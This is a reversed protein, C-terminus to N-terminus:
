YIPFQAIAGAEILAKVLVCAPLGVVNTYSGTIGEVMFAGIGQIAYAGAKGFPEGTAIYANIESEAIDRFRVETVVSDCLARTGIPSLICLGTIVRHSKGDLNTLMAFAERADTPKGMVNDGLVVVTDAAMIWSSPESPRVAMAKREAILCVDKMPDGAAKKEESNSSVQRFPIRLQTLIDRRRPSDSALILPNESSILNSSSFTLRM